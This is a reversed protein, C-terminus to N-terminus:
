ALKRGRALIEEQLQDTFLPTAARGLKKEEKGRELADAVEEKSWGHIRNAFVTVFWAFKSGARAKSEHLNQLTEQLTDYDGLALCRALVLQSPHRESRVRPPHFSVYRVLAQALLAAVEKQDERLREIASIQSIQSITEIGSCDSESRIQNLAGPALQQNQTQRPPIELGPPPSELGGTAPNGPWRPPIELGSTAPNGPWGHGPKEAVQPFTSVRHLSKWAVLPPFELGGTSFPLRRDPPLWTDPITYITYQGKSTSVTIVRRLANTAEQLIDRSMGLGQELSRQSVQVTPGGQRIAIAIIRWLLKVAAGKLSPAEDDITLILEEYTL